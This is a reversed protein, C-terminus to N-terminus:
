VVSRRGDSGAALSSAGWRRLRMGFANVWARAASASVWDPSPDLHGSRSSSITASASAHPNRNSSIAVNVISWGGSALQQQVQTLFLSSAAGKWKPDSDPFHQGIDGGGTAGLLADVIAHIVVDGDSHSIPSVNEAVTVGGLVLRGGDQLRHIDYGHGIRFTMM